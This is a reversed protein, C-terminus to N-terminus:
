IGKVLKTITGDVGGAFVAGGVSGHASIALTYLNAIEGPELATLTVTASSAEASLIGNVKAPPTIVVGAGSRGNILAAFATAVSADNGGTLIQVNTSASDSGTYEVGNVTVTDGSVFSSFTVTQAARVGTSGAFVYGNFTRSGGCISQFWSGINRFANAVSVNVLNILPITLNSGSTKGVIKIYQTTAM